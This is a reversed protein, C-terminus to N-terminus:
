FIEYILGRTEYENIFHLKGITFEKNLITHPM